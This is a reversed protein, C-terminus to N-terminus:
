MRDTVAKVIVNSFTDALLTYSPTSVFYLNLTLENDGIQEKSNWSLSRRWQLAGRQSPQYGLEVEEDRGIRGRRM